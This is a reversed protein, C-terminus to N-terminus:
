SEIEEHTKLFIDPKCPYFEGDVGQVIYDGKSAIHIADDGKGDELTPVILEGDEIRGGCWNAISDSDTGDWKVAMNQVPKKRFTKLGVPLSPLTTGLKSENTQKFVSGSWARVIPLLKDMPANFMTGHVDRDPSYNFAGLFRHTGDLVFGDASSLINAEWTPDAAQVKLAHVKAPNYDIQAAMLNKAPSIYDLSDIGHVDLLYKKLAEKDAIQPMDRRLQGYNGAPSKISQNQKKWDDVVGGIISM